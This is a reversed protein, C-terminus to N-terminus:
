KEVGRQEKASLLDKVVLHAAEFWGASRFAEASVPM